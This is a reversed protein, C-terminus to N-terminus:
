RPWQKDQSGDSMMAGMSAGVLEAEFVMHEDTSGLHKKVVKAVKRNKYLVAAAGVGGDIASGELYVKLTTTNTKEVKVADEKNEPINILFSPSWKPGRLVTEIKEMPEPILDFAHMIEHLLYKHKKM